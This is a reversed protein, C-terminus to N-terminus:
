APRCTVVWELGERRPLHELGRIVLRNVVDSRPGLLVQSRAQLVFSKQVPELTVVELGAGALEERLEDPRYLKDYIPFDGPSAERLPRSVRENVADFVFHGGPVLVRRVEAYLRARDARRFHRLFRFSFVLDFCRAFPLGFGSGRVWSVSGWSAPRGQGIMADNYELCVLGGPPRLDRTVRGPGAAIELSRRPQTQDMLRQVAAVQRDHLLRHLESAFRRVVYERAVEPTAYASQVGAEGSVPGAVEQPTRENM